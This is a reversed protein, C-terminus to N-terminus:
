NIIEGTKSSNFWRIGCIVWAPKREGLAPLHQHNKKDLGRSLCKVWAIFNDLSTSTRNCWKEDHQNEIELQEVFYLM